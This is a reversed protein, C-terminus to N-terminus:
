ALPLVPWVETIQGGSYVQMPGFQQMVFESQTPRLFAYDDVKADSDDPLAYFQQNTSSGITANLRLGAPSVPRAMWKGGYIYCGKRPLLGLRQALRSRTDLGPLQVDVVKLVPTAIFLAPALAELSPVDFDTPKVFASGMSIENAGSAGDYLLATTSGGLNLIDRQDQALRAAFRQFLALSKQRAKEPGGFLKPIHGIHAEYAMVGCCRLRALGALRALASALADPDSFGGRHLGVDVEFCLSIDRGLAQALEAYAVLRADSDVLWVIREADAPSLNLMTRRALEVPMPKGYVIAARPFEALVARTIPPHFSMVLDTAFATIIRQMLPLCPLSKDVLRLAASKPWRQHVAAINADLRELDVVLCPQHLGAARLAGSMQKFYAAESM